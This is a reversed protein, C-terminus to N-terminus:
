KKEKSLIDIMAIIDDLTEKTTWSLRKEVADFLRLHSKGSVATVLSKTTFFLNGWNLVRGQHYIFIM